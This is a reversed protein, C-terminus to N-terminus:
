SAMRSFPRSAIDRRPRSVPPALHGISRPLARARAAKPDLYRGASRQRHGRRWRRGGPRWAARRGQAAAVVHRPWGLDEQTTSCCTVISRQHSTEAQPIGKPGGPGDWVVP